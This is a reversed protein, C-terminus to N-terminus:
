RGYVDVRRERTSAEGVAEPENLLDGTCLAWRVVRAPKQRNNRAEEATKAALTRTRRSESEGAPLTKGLSRNVTASAAWFVKRRTFRGFGSQAARGDSQASM